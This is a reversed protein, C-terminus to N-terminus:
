AIILSRLRNLNIRDYDVPGKKKPTELIKPLPKLKSDNLIFSFADIGIEGKGIHEHRDIRSGLGKKADNLHIVRLHDLGVVTDFTKMTQEYATKTRLDYGAAFAHCTDLCVGIREKADVMDSIAALQEFNHGLNSGQGATTELILRCTAAPVRDFVRDIGDAIRRLGPAQGMGMHSGPHMVVYPITLQSSRVLEQELAMISREYKSPEPSALNILYSTHSCISSIGTQERALHFQEIDRASLSREKWTNANKTFIQLATCGYEYATLVAKHLGGAISLHAGLLIM